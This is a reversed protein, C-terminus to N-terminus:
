LYSKSATRLVYSNYAMGNEQLEKCLTEKFIAVAAANTLTLSTTGQIYDIEALSQEKGTWLKLNLSKVKQIVKEIDERPGRIVLGDKIHQYNETAKCTFGHFVKDKPGYLVDLCISLESNTFTNVQM